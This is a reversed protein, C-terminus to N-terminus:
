TAVWRRRESEDEGASRGVQYESTENAGAVVNRTWVRRLLTPDAPVPVATAHIRLPAKAVDGHATRRVVQARAYLARPRSLNAAASLIACSARGPRCCQLHSGDNLARSMGNMKAVKNPVCSRAM